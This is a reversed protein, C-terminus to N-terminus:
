ITGGVRCELPELIDYCQTRGSVKQKKGDDKPRLRLPTFNGNILSALEKYTISQTEM